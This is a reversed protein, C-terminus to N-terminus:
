VISKGLCCCSLRLIHFKYQNNKTKPNGKQQLNIDIKRQFQGSLKNTIKQNLRIDTALSKQGNKDTLSSRVQVDNWKGDEKEVSGSYSFSGRNNSQFSKGTIDTKSSFDDDRLHGTHTHDFSLELHDPVKIDLKATGRGYSVDFTGKRGAGTNGARVTIDGKYCRRYKGTATCKRADIDSIITQKEDIRETHGILSNDDFGIDM